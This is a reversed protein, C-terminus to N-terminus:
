NELNLEERVERAYKSALHLTEPLKHPPKIFGLTLNYATEISIKNGPSIFLPNSKEKSVLVRGTKKGNLLINKGEPDLENGDYLDKEVGITPVGMVISFHSALGLRPHNIGSGLIFVVDPKENLKNYAEAMSPMERYSRFGHIYPFRLKDLFYQQELINCDKDCVIVASIIQNGVILNSIGGFRIALSFDDNDKISLIKALKIQEKKLAEIDLGYKSALEQEDM